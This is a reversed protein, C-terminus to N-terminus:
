LRWSFGLTNIHRHRPATVKVFIRWNYLDEMEKCSGKNRPQLKGLSNEQFVKRDAINEKRKALHSLFDLSPQCPLYAREGTPIPRSCDKGRCYLGTNHLFSQACKVIVIRERRRQSGHPTKRPDENYPDLPIRSNYGM